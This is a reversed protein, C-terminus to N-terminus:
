WEQPQMSKELTGRTREQVPTTAGDAAVIRPSILVLVKMEERSKNKESFFYKLLPIDGLLPVGDEGIDDMISEAGGMVLTKNLPCMITSQILNKQVNFDDGMPVPTSLELELDLETDKSGVLGGKVKLILGYEIDELGTTDETSVRVKITGGSQFKKWETAGNKFTLHGAHFLRADGDGKLFRLAGQLGSNVIYSGGFDASNGRGVTGSFYSATTDIALLGADALNVGFQKEDSESVVAFYANIELLLPIQSLDIFCPVKGDADTGDTSLAPNRELASRVKKIDNESYFKGTVSIGGPVSQILVSESPVVQTNRETSVKIGAGELNRKLQLVFAPGPEFTAYNIIYDGHAEEAIKVLRWREHSTVTGKIVVKGIKNDYISLEPVAELERKIADALIQTNPNVNFTYQQTEGNSGMILLSTTGLKTGSVQITDSAVKAVQVVGDSTAQWKSIEFPLQFQRSEHQSLSVANAGHVAVIGSFLITCGVCLKFFLNRVDQIRESKM